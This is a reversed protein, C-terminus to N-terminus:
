NCKNYIKKVDSLVPSMWEMLFRQPHLIGDHGSGSGACRGGIGLARQNMTLVLLLAVTMGIFFGLLIKM